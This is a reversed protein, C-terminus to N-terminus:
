RVSYRFVVKGKSDIYAFKGWPGFGGEIKVHALGHFFNTAFEFTGPFAQRGTRDIYHYGAERDGVFALGEAFGNAQSFQPQIVFAGSTDIYGYRGNVRVAALGASFGSTDEFRPPIAMTGDKHIYGWLNGIKVAALGESFSHAGDFRMDGILRGTKDAFTFKCQPVPGDAKESPPIVQGQSCPDGFDFRCPGDIIVRSMGDSFDMADLFIPGIVFKGSHDIFGSSGHTTIKALGESFSSAYEHSDFRPPIAFRGSTDIFGWPAPFKPMAFALGESFDWNRGYGTDLAKKGSRDIYAGDGIGTVLFGDHFEGYVDDPLTPPVVIRGQSDIYGIRKNQVFRYLPDATKTTISWMPRVTDCAWM